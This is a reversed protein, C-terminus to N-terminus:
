QTLCECYQLQKLGNTSTTLTLMGGGHHRVKSSNPRIDGSTQKCENDWVGWVTASKLEEWKLLEEGGTGGCRM